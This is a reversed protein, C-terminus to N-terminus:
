QVHTGRRLWPMCAEMVICRAVSRLQAELLDLHLDLGAVDHGFRLAHRPGRRIDSILWCTVHWVIKRFLWCNLLLYM